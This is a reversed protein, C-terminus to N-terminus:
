GGKAREVTETVNQGLSLELTHGDPDALNVLYGAADHADGHPGDRFCGEARALAVLRDLEARSACAVGLHAFPGLPHDITEAEALVVVFPRTLDSLWAIGREPHDTQARRHVVQMGAYKAYFAISRDLNTVPLAVHTLGRDAMM